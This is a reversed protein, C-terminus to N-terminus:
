EAARDALGRKTDSRDRCDYTRTSRCRAHDRDVRLEIASRIQRDAYKSDSWVDSEIRDRRLVAVDLGVSLRPSTQASGIAKGGSASCRAM